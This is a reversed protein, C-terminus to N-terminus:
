ALSAHTDHISAWKIVMALLELVIGLLLHGLITALTLYGLTAGTSDCPKDIFSRVRPSSQPGGTTTSRRSEREEGVVVGVFFRPRPASLRNRM